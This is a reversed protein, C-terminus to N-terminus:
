YYVLARWLMTPLTVSFKKQKKLGALGYIYKAHM